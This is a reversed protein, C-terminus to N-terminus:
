VTFIILAINLLLYLAMVVIAGRRDLKKSKEIKGSTYLKLSITSIVLTAFIFAFCLFHVMDVFSFSITAPVNTDVVYKNGVSAFLGGIGLGFRPDVYDPKIFFALFSVLFAIYLGTFLKFYLGWGNRAIEIVFSLRNYNKSKAGSNHYGFDNSYGALSKEIYYKKIKWGPLKIEDGIQFNYKDDTVFMIDTNYQAELVIRLKQKDFPYRRLDWNHTLQGKSNEYSVFTNGDREIFSSYDELRKANVIEVKKFLSVSDKNINWIYFDAGFSLDAPTMDYLTKVYIGVHSTDRKVESFSSLSILNIFILFFKSL